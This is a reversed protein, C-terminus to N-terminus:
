VLLANFREVAERLDTGLRRMCEDLIEEPIEGYYAAAIGGAIAAMTDADGGMAVALRVASEYDHSELFCIISEPVSGRCSVDFSYGPQISAYSRGLDYGFRREIEDRIQDKGHGALALHIALAVAQAGKVGEPHDHTVESSEKALRLAEEASEAWAGIASVRMASGNGWSGYPGADEFMIWRRFRGGYGARPYRRCWERLAQAFPKGCAIAEAVAVSCVTDDTFRSSRRLLKFDYDKVPHWEYASGIVDGCVAGWLAMRARERGKVMDKEGPFDKDM